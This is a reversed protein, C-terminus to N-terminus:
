ISGNIRCACRNIEQKGLSAVRSTSPAEELLCKGSGPMRTWANNIHIPIRRVRGNDLLKLVLAHKASRAATANNRIEIVDDLLIVARNLSPDVSTQSETGKIACLARNLAIFCHVHNAFPLNPPQWLAIDCCLDPEDFDDEADSSLKDLFECTSQERAAIQLVAEDGTVVLNRRRAAFDPHRSCWSAQLHSLRNDAFNSEIRANLRKSL